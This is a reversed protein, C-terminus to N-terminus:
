YAKLNSFLVISRGVIYELAQVISAGLVSRLMAGVEKLFLTKIMERSGFDAYAMQSNLHM